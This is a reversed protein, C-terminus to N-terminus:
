VGTATTATRSSRAAAAAGLFDFVVILEIRGCDLPTCPEDGSVGSLFAKPSKRLRKKTEQAPENLRLGLRGRAFGEGVHYSARVEIIPLFVLSLFNVVSVRLARLLCSFLSPNSSMNSDEKERRETDETDGHHM